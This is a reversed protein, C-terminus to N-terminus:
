ISCESALLPDIEKQSYDAVLPKSKSKHQRQWHQMSGKCIYSFVWNQTARSVERVAWESGDAQGVGAVLHNAIARQLAPDDAPQNMLADSVLVVRATQGEDPDTSVGTSLAGGLSPDLTSLAELVYNEGESVGLTLEASAALDLRTAVREARTATVKGSFADRLQSQLEEVSAFPRSDLRSPEEDRFNFSSLFDMSRRGLPKGPSQASRLSQLSQASDPEQQLSSTFLRRSPSPSPPHAPAQLAQLASLWPTIPSTPNLDQFSCTRPTGWTPPPTLGANDRTLYAEARTNASAAAMITEAEM